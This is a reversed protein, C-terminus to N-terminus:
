KLVSIKMCGTKETSQIKLIYEGANLNSIDVPFNNVGEHLFIIKEADMAQGYLNLVQLTAEAANNNTIEVSLNQTAPVPYAKLETFALDKKTSAIILDNLPGTSGNPLAYYVDMATGNNNSAPNRFGSAFIVIGKGALESLDANYTEITTTGSYDTVTFTYAQPQVVKYGGNHGFGVNNAITGGGNDVMVKVIPLDTSGHLFDVEVTAPDNAMEKAAFNNHFNLQIDRGDPNAAYGSGSVGGIMAVNRTSAVFTHTFSKVIDGAGTSNGPALGVTVPTGTTVDAYPTAGRFPLDDAIKNGDIYIDVTAYAPDASSHIIQLRANQAFGDTFSFSYLASIFIIRKFFTFTKKM